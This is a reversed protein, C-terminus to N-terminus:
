ASHKTRHLVVLTILTFLLYVDSWDNGESNLYEWQYGAWMWAYTFVGVLVWSIVKQAM